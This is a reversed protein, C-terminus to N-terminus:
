IEYYIVPIKWKITGLPNGELLSIHVIKEDSDYFRYVLLTPYYKQTLWTDMIEKITDKKNGGDDYFQQLVTWFDDVSASRHISNYLGLLYSVIFSCKSM